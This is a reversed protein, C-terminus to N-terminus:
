QPTHPSKSSSSSYSDQLDKVKWLERAELLEGYYERKETVYEPDLCGYRPTHSHGSALLRGTCYNHSSANSETM